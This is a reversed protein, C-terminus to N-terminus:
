DDRGGTGSSGSLGSRGSRGSSRGGESDNLAFRPVGSVCRAQVEIEGEGGSRRFKVKADRAPGGSVEDISWGVAPAASITVLGGRCSGSVLGARTTLSRVVPQAPSTASAAPRSTTPSPSQGGHNDRPRGSTTAPAPTTPASGTPPPTTGASAAVRAGTPETFPDGVLGAAAFGVGVAAAAFLGWLAVLALRRNM